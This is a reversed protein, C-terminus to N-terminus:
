PKYIVLSNCRSALYGKMTKNLSQFFHVLEEELLILQDAQHTFNLFFLIFM